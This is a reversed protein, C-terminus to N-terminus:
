TTRVKSIIDKNELFEKTNNQMTVLPLIETINDKGIVRLIYIWKKKHTFTKKEKKCSTKKSLSCNKKKNKNM